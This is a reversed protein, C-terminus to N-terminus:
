DRLATGDGGMLATLMPLGGAKAFRRRPVM